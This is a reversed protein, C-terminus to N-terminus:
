QNAGQYHELLQLLHDHIDHHIQEDIQAADLELDLDYIATIEEGTRDHEGAAMAASFRGHNADAQWEPLPEFSRMLTIPARTANAILRAAPLAQASLKSGDLPVIINNCLTM